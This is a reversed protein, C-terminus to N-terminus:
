RSDKFRIAQARFVHKDNGVLTMWGFRVDLRQAGPATSVDEMGVKPGGLLLGDAGMDAARYLMAKLIGGEEGSSGDCSMFGIVEFPRGVEGESHYPRITGYPKKQATGYYPAAQLRNYHPCPECGSLSLLLAALLITPTRM